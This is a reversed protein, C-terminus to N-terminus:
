YDSALPDPWPYADLDKSHALPSHSIFYGEQDVAHGAGWWDYRTHGDQSLRSQFSLDLRLLHNDLRSSLQDEAVGFQVALKEAMRRTTPIQTPLRDVPQHLLARRVREKHTLPTNM